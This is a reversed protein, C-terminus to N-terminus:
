SAGGLTISALKVDRYLDIPKCDPNEQMFEEFTVGHELYIDPTKRLNRSALYWKGFIKHTPNTTSDNGKTLYKAIYNCASEYNEDIPICTSFGLKWDQMNYIIQGRETTLVEGTHANAAPVIRLSGLKCLGHFHIAGDKHLEPVIVYAFGKRKVMNKLFDFVKKKVTDADYRDIKSPDLTWTFFYEFNNLLAIDKVKSKARARSVQESREPDKGEGSPSVAYPRKCPEWGPERFISANSVQLVACSPYLKVRANATIDAQTARLMKM